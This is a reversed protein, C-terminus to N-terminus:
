ESQPLQAWAPAQRMEEETPICESHLIATTLCDSLVIKTSPELNGFDNYAQIATVVGMMWPKINEPQYEFMVYPRPVPSQFCSRANEIIANKSDDNLRPSDLSKFADDIVALYREVDVEGAENITGTPRILCDVSAEKLALNFAYKCEQSSPDTKCEDVDSHIVSGYANVFCADGFNRM